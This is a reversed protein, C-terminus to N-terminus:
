SATSYNKANDTFFPQRLKTAKEPANALVAM